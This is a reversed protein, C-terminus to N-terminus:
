FLKYSVYMPNVKPALNSLSIKDPFRPGVGQPNFYYHNSIPSFFSQHQAAIACYQGKKKQTQNFIPSAQEM